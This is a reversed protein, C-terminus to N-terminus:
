RLLVVVALALVVAASLSAIGLQARRGGFLRGLVTGGGTLLLQWAASAVLAGLAFLLVSWGSSTESGGRGLVVAVFTVVTTPNVATLGVLMLFARPASLLRPAEVALVADRYRRVAQHLTRVAVAVLVLAAVVALPDAIRRLLPQLGVGATAALLAYAGDVSAVGLAAAAATAFRERAALGILYTGIAGIPMAVALGAAAGALLDNAM